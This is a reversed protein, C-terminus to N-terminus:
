IMFISIILSTIFSFQLLLVTLKLCINKLKQGVDGFGVNLVNYLTVGVFSCAAVGLGQVFSKKVVNWSNQNHEDFFFQSQKLLLNSQIKNFEASDLVDNNAVAKDNQSNSAWYASSAIAIVGAVCGAILIRKSWTARSLLREFKAVKNDIRADSICRLREPQADINFLVPEAAICPILFKVCLFATLIFRKFM